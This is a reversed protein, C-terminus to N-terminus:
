FGVIRFGFIAISRHSHSARRRREARPQAPANEASGVTEAPPVSALKEGAPRPEAGPPVPLPSAGAIAPKTEAAPPLTKYAPQVAVTSMNPAPQPLTSAPQTPPEAVAPRPAAPIAQTVAQPPAAVAATQSPSTEAPSKAARTLCHAAIYPWTQEACDQKLDPADVVRVPAPPPLAATRATGKAAPPLGIVAVVGLTLTALLVLSASLRETVNPTTHPVM